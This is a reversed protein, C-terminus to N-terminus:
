EPQEEVERFGRCNTAISGFLMAPMAQKEHDTAISMYVDWKHLALSFDCRYACVADHICDDCHKSMEGEKANDM